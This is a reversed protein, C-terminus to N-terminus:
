PEVQSGDQHDVIELETLLYERDFREMVMRLMLRDDGTVWIDTEGMLRYHQAEFTGAPVTITENGLVEYRMPVLQGLMPKGLDASAEVSFLNLSGSSGADAPLYWTHWGDGAVPHTGISFEQPVEVEQGIAGDRGIGSATLRSGDVQFTVNGKYGSAVWYSAFASLPRFNEAVRLVVTFQSNMAWINHWIMLTRSGDPHVMLQFEEAGRERGDSLTLYTYQGSMTRVVNANAGPNAAPQAPSCAFLLSALLFARGVYVTIAERFYVLRRWQRDNPLRAHLLVKPM